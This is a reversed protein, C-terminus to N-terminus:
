LWRAIFASIDEGEAFMMYQFGAAAHADLAHVAIGGDPEVNVTLKSDTESWFLQVGGEETPFVSPAVTGSKTVSDLVSGACNLAAAAIPIGADGDLWGQELAALEALSTM